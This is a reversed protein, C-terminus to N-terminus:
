EFSVNRWIFCFQMWNNRSIERRTAHLFDMKYVIINCFKYLSITLVFYSICLEWRVDKANNSFIGHTPLLSFAQGILLTVRLSRQFTAVTKVKIKTPHIKNDTIYLHTFFFFFSHLTLHFMLKESFNLVESQCTLNSMIKSRSLRYKDFIALFM